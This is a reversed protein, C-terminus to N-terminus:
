HAESEASVGAPPDGDDDILGVHLACLDDHRADTDGLANQGDGEGAELVVFNALTLVDPQLGM